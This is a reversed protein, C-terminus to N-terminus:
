CCSEGVDSQGEVKYLIDPKESSPFVKIEDILGGQSEMADTCIVEVGQEETEELNYENRRREKRIGTLRNIHEDNAQSREEQWERAERTRKNMEFVKVDKWAEKLEDAEKKNCETNVESTEYDDDDAQYVDPSALRLDEGIPWEGADLAAPDFPPLGAAQLDHVSGLCHEMVLCLRDPQSLRLAAILHVIHLNGDVDMADQGYFASGGSSVASLRRLIAAENLTQAWGGSIKRVGLRSVIKVACRRLTFLDLGDKVSM